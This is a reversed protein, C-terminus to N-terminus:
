LFEGRLISVLPVEHRVLQGLFQHEVLYMVQIIENAMNRTVHIDVITEIAKAKNNAKYQKGIYEPRIKNDM